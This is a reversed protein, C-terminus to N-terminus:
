QIINSAESIRENTRGGCDWDPFVLGILCKRLEEEIKAYFDNLYVMMKEMRNFGQGARKPGENAPWQPQPESEEAM